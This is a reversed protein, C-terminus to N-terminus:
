VTIFSANHRGHILFNGFMYLKLGGFTGRAEFNIFGMIYSFEHNTLKCPPFRKSNADTVSM